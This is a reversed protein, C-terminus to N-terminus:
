SMTLVTDFLKEFTQLYLVLYLIYNFQIKEEKQKRDGKIRIEYATGIGM